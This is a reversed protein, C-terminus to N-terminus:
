VNIPEKTDEPGVKKLKAKADEIAAIADSLSLKNQRVEIVQKNEGAAQLAKDQAIGYSLLLDKLNTKMLLNDDQALLELKRKAVLRIGEQLEFSDDALQQRRAEFAQKHRGKLAMLGNFSIGTVQKIEPYTHGMALMELARTAIGPSQVEIYRGDSPSCRVVSDVIPNPKIDAM